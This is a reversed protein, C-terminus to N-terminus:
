SEVIESLLHQKLKFIGLHKELRASNSYMLSLMGCFSCNAAWVIELHHYESMTFDSRNRLWIEQFAILIPMQSWLDNVTYAVAPDLFDLEDGGNNVRIQSSYSAIYQLGVINQKHKSSLM